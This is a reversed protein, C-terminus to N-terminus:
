GDADGGLLNIIRDLRSLLHQQWSSDAAETYQLFRSMCYGTQGQWVVKAWGDADALVQLPDGNPMRALPPRDTGPTPRLKLPNGDGTLIRAAKTSDMDTEEKGYDIGTLYGTHTWGKATRDTTIGNVGGGSTCHTIETPAARTVVGMHYYDLPDGNDYSSGNKYRENLSGNDARAKYVAMGPLLPGEGIPSLAETKRRAFYNSSHLPFTIGPDVRRMAGMILGVCDCTGDAGTGGLRYVPKEDAIAAVAELFSEARM